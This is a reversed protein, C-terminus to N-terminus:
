IAPPQPHRTKNQFRQRTFRWAAYLVVVFFVPLWKKIFTPKVNQPPSAPVDEAESTELTVEKEANEPAAPQSTEPNAFQAREEPKLAPVETYTVPQIPTLTYKGKGFLKDLEETQKEVLYSKVEVVKLYGKEDISITYFTSTVIYKRYGEEDYCDEENESDVRKYLQHIIVLQPPYGERTLALLENERAWIGFKEDQHYQIREWSTPTQVYVEWDEGTKDYSFANNATILEEVGDNNLDFAIIKVETPPPIYTYVHKHRKLYSDAFAQKDLSSPPAAFVVGFSAYAIFLLLKKM